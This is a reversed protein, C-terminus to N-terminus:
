DPALNIQLIVHQAIRQNFKITGMKHV